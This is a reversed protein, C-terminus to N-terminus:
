IGVWIGSVGQM